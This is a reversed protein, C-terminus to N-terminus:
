PIPVVSAPPTAHFRDHTPAASDLLQEDRIGSPVAVDAPIVAADPRKFKMMDIRVVLANREAAGSNRQREINQESLGSFANQKARVAVGFDLAPHGQKGSSHGVCGRIPRM